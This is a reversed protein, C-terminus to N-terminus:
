VGRLGIRQLLGMPRMLKRRVCYYGLSVRLSRQERADIDSQETGVTAIEPLSKRESWISCDSSARFATSAASKNQEAGSEGPSSKRKMFNTGGLLGDPVAVTIFRVVIGSERIGAPHETLSINRSALEGPWWAWQRTLIFLTLDM